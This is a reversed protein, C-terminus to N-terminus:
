VNRPNKKPTKGAHFSFEGKQFGLDSKDLPSIQIELLNDLAVESKEM